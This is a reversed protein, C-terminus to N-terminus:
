VLGCFVLDNIETLKIIIIMVYQHHCYCLGIIIGMLVCLLCVVIILITTLSMSTLEALETAHDGPLSYSHFDLGTSQTYKFVHQDNSKYTLM